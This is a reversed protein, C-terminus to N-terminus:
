ESYQINKSKTSLKQQAEKKVSDIYHIYRFFTAALRLKTIEIEVASLKQYDPSDSKPLLRKIYPELSEYNLNRNNLQDEGGVGILYIIVEALVNMNMFRLQDASSFMEIYSMKQENMLNTNDLAKRLKAKAIEGPTNTSRQGRRMAVSIKVRPGGRPKRSGKGKGYSGYERANTFGESNM